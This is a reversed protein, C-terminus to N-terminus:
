LLLVCLFIPEIFAGLGGAVEAGGTGPTGGGGGTAGAGGAGDIDAGGGGGIGEGTTVEEFVGEEAGGAGGIGPPNGNKPSILALLVSLPAVSSVLPLSPGDLLIEEADGAGEIGAVEVGFVGEVLGPTDEIGLAGLGGLALGVLNFDLLFNSGAAGGAGGAGDAGAGGAGGAGGASAGASAASLDVGAIAAYKQAVSDFFAKADPEAGLRSAPENTLAVLLVSDQRGSALGWRTQLYKRAVTATFGGPMKSSILRSILSSSQKGLNGSFTEQLTEALEELPAEESKEPTSGFEKGLDGLIENQVTSKGGVLDKITKSMSISDMPKKLKHAVLVRLLLGAKVPEDPLEAVPGTPAPAAPAPAPAPASSAPASAAPAPASGADSVPAPSDSSGETIAKEKAELEAPDPTYSIERADKAYCLVQRHLSLAADYSEYKNKMTRQAMGSLTPSPGIEVVRESNMDKLFVDQTEIWRVPSAFQYALLETLLIHALEQEVEPKM